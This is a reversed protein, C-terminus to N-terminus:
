KKTLYDGDLRKTIGDNFKVEVEEIDHVVANQVQGQGYKSHYVIDGPQFRAAKKAPASSESAKWRTVPPSSVTFQRRPANGWPSHYETIEKPLDFLFLSPQNTSSSAQDDFRSQTYSLYLRDRARTIGVYMLRREEAIGGPEDKSRSHPLLGDEVGPMFVVPFELGKASHLTMLTVANENPDYRDLDAVLSKNELYEALTLTENEIMEQRLQALNEYRDETESPTGKGELYVYYDTDELIRDLLGLLSVQGTELLTIWNTLMEVFKTLANVARGSIPGTKGQPIDRLAAWSGDERRAVWNQFDTITKKGIGRTPTNIIRALRQGDNPNNIVHLYSLMDKIEMRDYFRVGGIIRYPTNADRLANEILRSQSNTRYMIAFDIPSRDENRLLDRVKQAIFQGEATGNYLEHIEIQAGTKRQSFLDRPRHAPDHRIVSMAADLILQHSRYNEDLSIVVHEPFDGEFRKLNRYDAGRFAYISQDPDGVVFVNRSEMGLLKIIEYQAINTDQFEDVMLYRFNRQYKELVDPNNQLLKVMQMLLDDFDMANNARLAQMYEKYVQGAVELKYGVAQFHDPGILENKAASIRGLIEYPNHQKPDKRLRELIEKIVGRQDATDYITFNNTYPTHDAERRLIQACISHFTGLMAGRVQYGMQGIRERMEGAAKNTFTTAMIHYPPVRHAEILYAIRHTLVRTKGSGPGALVLVPGEVTEVALRQNPNLGETIRHSM